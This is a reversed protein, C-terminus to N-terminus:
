QNIVCKNLLRLTRSSQLGQPVLSAWLGAGACPLWGACTPTCAQEEGGWGAGCSARRESEKDACFEPPAKQDVPIPLSTYVLLCSPGDRTWRKSFITRTWPFVMGLSMSPGTTSGEGGRTSCPGWWRRGGRECVKRKSFRIVHREQTRWLVVASSGAVAKRACFAPPASSSCCLLGRTTLSVLHLRLHQLTM